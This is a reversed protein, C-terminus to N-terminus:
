EVEYGNKQIISRAAAGQLYALFARAAANDAARQLLIADQRIPRHLSRPIEIFKGRDRAGSEQMYALAVLGTEANGTAVLAYAQAINEGMVLKTELANWVGLAQLADRSAEGYPALAPNAIAIKRVRQQALTEAIGPLIITADPSWLVLRGTAYSFRSGKVGAGSAELRQPRVQDASLFVDYPAGNLIQAYIKGTSGSSIDVRHTTSSEFDLKLQEAIATFNSAVALLADDAASALPLFACVILLCRNM